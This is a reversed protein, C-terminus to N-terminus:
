MKRSKSVEPHGSDVVEDYRIKYRADVELVQIDAKM